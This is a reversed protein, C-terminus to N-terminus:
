IHVPKVKNRCKSTKHGYLHCFECCRSLLTEKWRHTAATIGTLVPSCIDYLAYKEIMQSHEPLDSEIHYRTLNKLFFRSDHIRFIELLINNEKVFKTIQKELLEKGNSCQGMKLELDARLIHTNTVISDDVNFLNQNINIDPYTKIQEYKSLVTHINVWLTSFNHREYEIITINDRYNQIKIKNNRYTYIDHYYDLHLIFTAIDGIFLQKCLFHTNIKNTCYGCTCYFTFYLKRKLLEEKCYYNKKYRNM